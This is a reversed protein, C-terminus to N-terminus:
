AMEDLAGDSGDQTVLAFFSLLRERCEWSMKFENENSDDGINVKVTMILRQIINFCQMYLKTVKSEAITFFPDLLSSLSADIESAATNKYDQIWKVASELKEKIEPHKKKNLNSHSDTLISRFEIEIMELLGKFKQDCAVM